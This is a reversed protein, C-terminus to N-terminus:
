GVKAVVHDQEVQIAALAEATAGAQITARRDAGRFRLLSALNKFSAGYEGALVIPAGNDVVRV